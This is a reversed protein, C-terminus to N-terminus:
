DLAPVRRLDDVYARLALVVGTVNGTRHVDREVVDEAVPRLQRRGGRRQDEVARMTGPCSDGLELKPHRPDVTPDDIEIAVHGRPLRTSQGDLASRVVPRGAVARLLALRGIRNLALGICGIWGTRM